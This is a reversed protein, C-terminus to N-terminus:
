KDEVEEVARCLEDDDMSIDETNPCYKEIWEYESVLETDVVYIQWLDSM